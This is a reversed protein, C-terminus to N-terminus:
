FRGRLVLGGAHPLLEIRAESRTASAPVALLVVGTAVAAGGLVVATTSITASTKADNRLSVGTDNCFNPDMPSCQQRSQANKNIASVGFASGVIVGVLGVSGVTVGAIRRGSWFSAAGAGADMPGEALPPVEVTTSGSGQIVVRSTWTRRGPASAELVHEGGDVPLASNWQGEGVAVGDRKVQLGTMSRLAPPVVITLRSLRPELLAARRRAEDRRLTNGINVALTEADKFMAWSSALKGQREYCEALNLATGSGPDLHQSEALKLCAQVYDGAAMLKKGDQYLVEAAAQDEASAAGAPAAAILM